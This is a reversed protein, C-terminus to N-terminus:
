LEIVSVAIVAACTFCVSSIPNSLVTM